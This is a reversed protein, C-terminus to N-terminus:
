ILRNHTRSYRKDSMRFHLPDGLVRNVQQGATVRIWNLLRQCEQQSYVRHGRGNRYGIEDLMKSPVTPAKEGFYFFEESILIRDTQTDHETNALDQQGNPQSHVSNEQLWKGSKPDTHYINDGVMTKRSGHRVPRKGRFRESNWYENFSLEGTVRMAYICRGTAKLESGGMGVLWDGIKATRRIVPMCCAFTCVGEFPNPAFGFDYRVVYIYVSSM